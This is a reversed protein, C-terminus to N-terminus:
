IAFTNKRKKETGLLFFGWVTPLCIFTSNLKKDLKEFGHQDFLYILLM